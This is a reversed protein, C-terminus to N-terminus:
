GLRTCIEQQFKSSAIDELEESIKKIMRNSGMCKCVVKFNSGERWDEFIALAAIFAIVSWNKNNEEKELGM